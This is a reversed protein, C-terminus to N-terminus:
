DLQEKLSILYEVLIEVDKRPIDPLPMTRDQYGWVKEYEPDTIARKLYKRDVSITLVRSKRIVTEKKLYIDNLPPGYMDTGDLSHCTMCGYKAFTSFGTPLQDNQKKEPQGRCAALLMFILPILKHLQGMM